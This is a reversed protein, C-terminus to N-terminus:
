RNVSYQGDYCIGVTNYRFLGFYKVQFIPRWVKRPLLHPGTRSGRTSFYIYTTFMFTLIIKHKRRYLYLKSYGDSAYYFIDPRMRGLTNSVWPNCDDTLIIFCACVNVLIILKYIISPIERSGNFQTCMGDASHDFRNLEQAYNKM